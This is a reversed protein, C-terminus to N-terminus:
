FKTPKLYAERKLAKFIQMGSVRCQIIIAELSVEEGLGIRTIIRIPNHHEQATSNDVRGGGPIKAAQTALSTQISRAM